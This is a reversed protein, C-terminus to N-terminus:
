ETGAGQPSAAAFAACHGHPSIPGEVIRCTGMAGATRGAVFHRCDDCDRGEAPSRDVYHVDAKLLKKGPVASSTATHALAARAAVLSIFAVIVTRRPRHMDQLNEM